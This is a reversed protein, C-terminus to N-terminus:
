IRNGLRIKFTIAISSNKLAAGQDDRAVAQYNFGDPTQGAVTTMSMLFILM